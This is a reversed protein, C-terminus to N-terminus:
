TEAPKRTWAAARLLLEVAGVRYGSDSYLARGAGDCLVMLPPSDPDRGLRRAAAELVYDWDGILALAGDFRALAGAVTPQRLSERERVLFLPRVPLAERRELLENLVHETPEDGEAAWLALVPGDGMRFINPIERGEPTQASLVPLEQSTLLDEGSLPRLRLSVTKEEGPALEVERRAALQDGSPLRVSTILRYCGAPLALALAGDQWAGEPSLPAWGKGTWRSLSWDRRYQPACDPCLM